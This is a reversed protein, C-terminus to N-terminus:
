ICHKGTLRNGDDLREQDSGTSWFALTAIGLANVVGEVSHQRFVMVRQNLREDDCDVM